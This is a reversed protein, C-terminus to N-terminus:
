ASDAEPAKLKFLYHGVGWEQGDNFNFLESCAMYFVRFRYYTKSAEEESRGQAVADRKLEQLGAKGNRDQKELWHELTKSYHTGSIYWSQLLALEDQFYLLLDHSPMTGGSFFTQAMWGDGEEFHYPTTKHCFIHIFLLSEESNAKSTPRLWSSVKRLLSKYNKMHEFMEISLIRDFRQDAKFDFFNVDGTIITVNSLGRAKAVGDIHAKQTRSNSLGTIRSNPYKQALYLSLSGWGCGLDLIDIGDRLRAKECYSELMLVEAEELTENGTPYLCSSYKAFPGLCSMLFDTSVEYHQENAKDTLDAITEREKVGDIWAIKAAHNAEFSGHDIERLRQRLLARIVIRLLVDPVLGKDLLGYGTELINDLM